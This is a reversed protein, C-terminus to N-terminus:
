AEKMAIAMRIHLWHNEVQKYVVRASLMKGADMLRALIKNEGKPVYGLKKGDLTEVCIAMKDNENGPERRLVLEVVTGDISAIAKLSAAKEKETLNAPEFDGTLGSFFANFKKFRPFVMSLDTSKTKTRTTNQNTSM